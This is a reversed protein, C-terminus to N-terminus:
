PTSTDGRADGGDTLDSEGAKPIMGPEPSKLLLGDPMLEVLLRSGPAWSHRAMIAQPLQFEGSADVVILCDSHMIM